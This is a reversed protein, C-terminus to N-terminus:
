ILPSNEDETLLDLQDFYIFTENAARTDADRAAAAADRDAAAQLRADQRRAMENNFRQQKMNQFAQYSSLVGEGIAGISM